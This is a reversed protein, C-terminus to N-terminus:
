KDKEIELEWERSEIYVDLANLEPEDLGLAADLKKRIAIARPSSWQDKYVMSKYRILWKSIINDPARDNVDYVHKLVRSSQAGNTGIPSDYILGDKLIYLDRRDITSIVTPSHTTLIFQINPFTKKLKSVITQQWRPHLHLDIEDILVIGQGTLPNKKEPNLMVLRRAIDGVLALLSREGQSLQTVSLSVNGKDILMDLDPHREIRLNNFEPMIKYIAKTVCELISIVSAKKPNTKEEYELEKKLLDLEEDKREKIKEFIAKITNDDLRISSLDNIIKLKEDEILQIKQKLERISSTDENKIDDFRKFWGIFVEFSSKSANSTISGDYGDIKNWLSKGAISAVKRDIEGKTINISREVPYYAILPLGYTPSLNNITQYISALWKIEVYYGDVKNLSFKKSQNLELKFSNKKNLSFSTFISSVDNTSNKRIDSDDIKHGNNNNESVINYMLWSLSKVISELITTKGAGNDGIFITLNSNSLRFNLREFGKYDILTLEDLRFKNDSSLEVLDMLLETSKKIDQPVYRGEEYYKSLQIISSLIGKQANNTLYRISKKRKEEDNKM